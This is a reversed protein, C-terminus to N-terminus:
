HRHAMETVAIDTEGFPTQYSMRSILSKPKRFGRISVLTTRLICFRIKRRIYAMTDAYSEKRKNAILTALRQHYKRCEPGEGGSTSFVLPSFSAQEVHVVRENYVRKKESEHSAYLQPLSKSSNSSANPHFIRVDFFAKGMSNWLGRASIDLRALDEHNSSRSFQQGTLPILTPELNVDRCVERLLDAETDRVENHRMIVYGGLRCVLAHDVSNKAGCACQSAVGSIKFNYRLAVADIFEQKNLSYGQAEIPLTNLWISSGKESALQLSRRMGDDSEECISVYSQLHMASKEAKIGKLINKHTQLSLTASEPDSLLQEKIKQTLSTTLKVSWEYEKDATKTPNQLNLGGFRTPLSLVKREHDSVSKGVLAPIFKDRLCREIPQFLDSIGPITRQVYNWRQMFGFTYAAYAAHPDTQAFDTLRELQKLWVSVKESVYETKFAPSGLCAGLHKKGVTSINIGTDKFVRQAKQINNENKLILWTKKANPLYGMSPGSENLTNWWTRIDNLSGAAASDGAFWAQSCKSRTHLLSILPITNCAYFPMGANDGQTCGEESMINMGVSNSVYLLPPSRYTNILYTALEPCLIQMNHLATGRNMSNFANSADVLLVAETEPNEFLTKM